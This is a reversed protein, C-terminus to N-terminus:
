GVAAASGPRRDSRTAARSRRGSAVLVPAEDERHPGLRRRAAARGLASREPAANASPSSSAGARRHRPDRARRVRGDQLLHLVAARAVLFIQSAAFIWSAQRVTPSDRQPGVDVLLRRRRRRRRVGGMRPDRQRRRAPGRRGRDRALHQAPARSSAGRARVRCPPIRWRSCAVLCPRRGLRPRPLRARRRRARGRRPRRVPRLATPGAGSVDARFAGRRPARRRAAVIRPREAAARRPRARDIRTRRDRARARPTRRLRGRRRLPRLRRRDVGERRRGAPAARVAYDQPLSLPELTSGDGTGLKPGPTLFFPVDAGLRARSARPAARRSRREAAHRQRPAAGDGRRLQRRRPRRRGPDAERHPRALAARRRSRGRPERARRTVITDDAFGEVALADAPELSITDCLDIRQLVTAVEHYGDRAARASSSRSTSRRRRTPAHDGCRTRRPRRVRAARAGRRPRGPRPRDGRAGGRSRERSAVGALALSNALTKRRHAFAGEVVRKVGEPIGPAIREFAVLASAVNPRPRFVERSVPHFGTRETVLQM